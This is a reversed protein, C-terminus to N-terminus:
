GKYVEFIREQLLDRAEQSIPHAIDRYKNDRAKKAPMSIFLGRSGEIIKIDRILFTDNFVITVFAKLKPNEDQTVPFIRIDTILLGNMM